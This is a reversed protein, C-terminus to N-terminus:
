LFLSIFGDAITCFQVFIQLLPQVLVGLDLQYVFQIMQALSEPLFRYNLIPFYRRGCFCFLM